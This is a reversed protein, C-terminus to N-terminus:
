KEAKEAEVRNAINILVDGIANNFEAEFEDLRTAIMRFREAIPIGNSVKELQDAFNRLFDQDNM